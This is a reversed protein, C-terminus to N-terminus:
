WEDTNVVGDLGVLANQDESWVTTGQTYLERLQRLLENLVVIFERSEWDGETTIDIPFGSPPQGGTSDDAEIRIRLTAGNDNAYEANPWIRFRYSLQSGSGVFEDKIYNVTM